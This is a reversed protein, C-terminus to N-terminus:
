VTDVERLQNNNEKLDQAIGFVVEYVRDAQGALQRNLWGLQRIYEKTCPEYNVGDSFIDNSVIILNDCHSTLDIIQPFIDKASCNHLFCENALLNSLCELLVTGSIREALRSIDFAQEITQFGKGFRLRKHREVRRKGEEGESLMTAVYFLSDTDSNRSNLALTEAFESKGSGSGGLVLTMM